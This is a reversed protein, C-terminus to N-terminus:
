GALIFVNLHVASVTGYREPCRLPQGSIPLWNRRVTSRSHGGSRRSGSHTGNAPTSLRSCTGDPQDTLTGPPPGGLREAVDAAPAHFVVDDPYSTATRMAQSAAFAAADGGPVEKTAARAGTAAPQTVRDLRLTRWDDRDLDFALLYWRRGATV